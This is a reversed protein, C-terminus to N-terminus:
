KECVTTLGEDPSCHPDLCYGPKARRRWDQDGESDPGVRGTFRYYDGIIGKTHYIVHRPIMLIGFLLLLLLMSNRAHWAHPGSYWPHRATRERRELCIYLYIYFFSLLVVRRISLKLLTPHKIHDAGVHPCPSDTATYCCLFFSNRARTCGAYIISNPPIERLQHWHHERGYLSRLRDSSPWSPLPDKIISCSVRVVTSFEEKRTSCFFCCPPGHWTSLKLVM